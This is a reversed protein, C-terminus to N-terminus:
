DGRWPPALAFRRAPAVSAVKVGGPAAGFTIAM